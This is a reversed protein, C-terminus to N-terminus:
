FAAVEHKLVYVVPQLKGLIQFVEWHLNAEIHDYIDQGHRAVIADDGRGMLQSTLLDRRWLSNSNASSSVSRSMHLRHETGVSIM